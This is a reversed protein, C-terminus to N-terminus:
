IHILSLKQIKSSDCPRPRQRKISCHRTFICMAKNDHQQVHFPKIADDLETGFIAAVRQMEKHMEKPRGVKGAADRENSRSLVRQIMADTMHVEHKSATAEAADHEEDFDEPSGGLDEIVVKAKSMDKADDDGDKALMSKHKAAQKQAMNRAEVSQNINVLIEGTFFSAMRSSTTPRSAM